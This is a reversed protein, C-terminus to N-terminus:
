TRSRRRPRPRFVGARGVKPMDAVFWRDRRFDLADLQASLGHMGALARAEETPALRVALVPLFEADNEEEEDNVTEAPGEDSADFANTCEDTTGRRAPARGRRTNEEATILEFLVCDFSSEAEEQLGAYYSAEGVHVTSVLTVEVTDSAGGRTAAETTPPRDVSSSGGTTEGPQRVVCGRFVATASQLEWSGDPEEVLRLYEDLRTRRRPSFASGEIIASGEEVGDATTGASGFGNEVSSGFTPPSANM